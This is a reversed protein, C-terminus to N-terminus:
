FFCTLYNTELDINCGKAWKIGVRKEHTPVARAGPAGGWWHRWWKKLIHHTSDWFGQREEMLGSRKMINVNRLWRPTCCTYFTTGLSDEWGFPVGSHLKEAECRITWRRMWKHAPKTQTWLPFFGFQSIQYMTFLFLRMRLFALLNNTPDDPM